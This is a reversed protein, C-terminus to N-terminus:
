RRRPEREPDVEIGPEGVPHARDFTANNVHSQEPGLTRPRRRHSRDINKWFTDIPAAPTPRLHKALIRQAALRVSGAGPGTRPVRAASPGKQRQHGRRCDHRRAHPIDDDGPPDFPIRLYAALVNVVTQQQNPNNQAVRLPGALRVAPKDSGLQDAAKTYLETVRRETADHTADAASLEEQHWQRRVALLLAFMGSTGAGTGLGTKIAEVRAASPDGATNAEHLLGATAGWTMAAILVGAVAVVWWSLTRSAQPSLRRWKRHVATALLGGGVTFMVVLGARAQLWRGMALWDVWGAATAM